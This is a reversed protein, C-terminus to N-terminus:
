NFSLVYLIDRAFTQPFSRALFNKLSQPVKAPKIPPLAIKRIIKLNNRLLFKEGSKIPFYHLHGYPAFPDETLHKNFIFRLKNLLHYDNPFTILIKGNENLRNKSENLLKKPDIIHELVDLLFIYDFKEKKFPIKDKNLNIQKAKIKRKKLTNILEQDIDICYYDPNQLFDKLKADHCGIDLVKSNPRVLRSVEKFKNLVFLRHTDM